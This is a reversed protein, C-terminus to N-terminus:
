WGTSWHSDSHIKPRAHMRLHATQTHRDTHKHTTTLEKGLLLPLPLATICRHSHHHHTPTYPNILPSPSGVVGWCKRGMSISAERVKASGTLAKPEKKKSVKGEGLTPTKTKRRATDHQFRKNNKSKWKRHTATTTTRKNQKHEEQVKSKFYNTESM